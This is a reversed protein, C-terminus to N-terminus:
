VEEAVETVEVIKSAVELLVEDGEAILVAEFDVESVAQVVRLGVLHELDWLGLLFLRPIDEAGL